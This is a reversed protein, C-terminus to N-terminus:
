RQVVGRQGDVLVLGLKARTPPFQVPDNLAHFVRRSDHGQRQIQGVAVPFAEEFAFLAFRRATTFPPNAPAHVLVANLERARVVAAAIDLAFVQLAAVRVVVLSQLRPILFM